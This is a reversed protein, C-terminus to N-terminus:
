EVFVYWEHGSDMQFSCKFLDVNRKRRRIMLGADEVFGVITTWVNCINSKIYTVVNSISEQLDNGAPYLTVAM